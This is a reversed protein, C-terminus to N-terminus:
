NKRSEEEEEPHKRWHALATWLILWFLGAEVSDPLKHASILMVEVVTM